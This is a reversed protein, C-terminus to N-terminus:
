LMAVVRYGYYRLDGTVETVQHPFLHPDFANRTDDSSADVELIRLTSDTFEDYKMSFSTDNQTYDFEYRRKELHLISAPTLEQYEDETIKDKVSKRDGNETVKAILLIQSDSNDFRKYALKKENREETELWDVTLTHASAAYADLFPLDITEVIFKRANDDLIEKKEPSTTPNEVSM